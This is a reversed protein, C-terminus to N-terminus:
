KAAAYGENVEKTIQDGGLTKWDSVFKDFEEIPAANLIIKTFTTLQLKDLSASKQVMTQTASLIFEDTILRKDKMYQDIVGFSGNEGFVRTYAFNKDDGAKFKLAREYYDLEEPNLKSANNTKLAENVNLYADLNKRNPRPNVPAWANFTFKGDVSKAYVLPEATEGWMKEFWRNYMKVPAEPHAYGKKVVLYNQVALGIQPRAPKDDASLLPYAQWDTKPDLDRYKQILLNAPSGYMLGIKGSAIFENVKNSDKVGFEKDIQGAKYMNQLQLLAKKMEPQVSGYQLKGQTDKIWINPYAHYSNFLGELMATTGGWLDKHIALGFTDNKGNGDPDKQTFAESIALVDQLTKPEPINLRKMWDTRIWIIPAANIPAGTQPIGMLKGKFTASKLSLGGDQNVIDKTLPTSYKNFVETLDEIQGEDVLKKLQEANVPTLDPLDGSAFTVNIKQDFQASPVSWVNKVKIGLEKEFDRYWVNNDISDGEPFVWAPSTSRVTKVEIPPEYKSLPDINAAKETNGKPTKETSTASEGGCASLALMMGAMMVGVIPKMPGTKM